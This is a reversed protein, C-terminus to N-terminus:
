ILQDGGTANMIGKRPKDLVEVDRITKGEIIFRICTIQKHLGHKGAAGPNMHLLKRKDDYIIKLIHSHGSIFLDPKEKELFHIASRDYHGPYGGIHKMLVKVDECYFVQIDPCTSRIKIDDINGSVARVKKFKELEELTQLSGIDGAHWIENCDNFFNFIGPYIWAHTDSLLGIRKM